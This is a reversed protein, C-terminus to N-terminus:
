KIFDLLPLATKIRQEAIEFYSDDSEIGIFNRGLNMCAVGTTGSGMFPDFVIENDNTCISVMREMIEIPKQSPHKTKEKANHPLSNIDWVDSMAVGDKLHGERYEKRKRLHPSVPVKINNFTANNGNSYYCIPEYEGNLARGRTTSMNRKRKWIIIRQEIFLEDLMLSIHRNYQRGTFIFLSGNEKVLLKFQHILKKVFNLYDDITDWQNDWENELVRFFPIDTAIADVKIGKSILENMIELCDGKYLEIM